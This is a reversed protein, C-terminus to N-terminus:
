RLAEALWPAAAEFKFFHKEPVVNCYEFYEAHTMEPHLKEEEHHRSAPAAYDPYYDYRYCDEAGLEAYVARLGELYETKGGETIFLKRPAFAALLDPYTFYRHVGPDLHWSNVPATEPPCINLIREQWDCIFDNYVFAKVDEDLLVVHMASDVGLSHGSIALREKDVFPRTKLFQMIALRLEVTLGMLSRGQALLLHEVDAPSLHGRHEGSVLDDCAIATIGHRVYHQAMANAYYYRHSLGNPPQAPEYELDFFEEGALCEKRWLTGPTCVVGPTKNEESAEKPILMLFSMWLEPEPSIEYKELIYSGRDKRALLNVIPEEYRDESFALMEVVKEKLAAKWAAREEDTMGPRYALPLPRKAYLSKVFHDTAFKNM